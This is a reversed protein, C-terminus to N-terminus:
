KLYGFCPYTGLLKFHRTEEELLALIREKDRHNDGWDIDIFFDYMWPEGIRPRSEIKSMNVDNDAMLNLFHALAGPKHKLSFYISSKYGVIECRPKVDKGRSILLFRTYNQPDTEINEALIKLGYIEAALRSGIAATTSQGGEKLDRVAGATDDTEVLRVDLKNLFRQSQNLAMPHSWVEHIDEIHASKHGILQHSIRLFAEGIINAHSQALNDYNYLLSGAISNEIAVLGFPSKEQEVDEFVETFRDRELCEVEGFLYATAMHHFSGRIGQISILVNEDTQTPHLPDLYNSGALSANTRKSM